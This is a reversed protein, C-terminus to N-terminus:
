WAMPHHLYPLWLQREIATEIGACKAFWLGEADCTGRRCCRPEGWANGTRLWSTFNALGSETGLGNVRLTYTGGGAQVFLKQEEVITPMDLGTLTSGTLISKSDTTDASNDVNLTDGDGGGVVTLLTGIENLRQSDSSVIVVDTGGGLSVTTHGNLSKVNITDSGTGSNITTRGSHTSEITLTDNGTGLTLNFEEM